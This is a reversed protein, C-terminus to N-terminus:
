PQPINSCPDPFRKDYEALIHDAFKVPAQEKVCNDSGAVAVAVAKWLEKRPDPGVAECMYETKTSDMLVIHTYDSDISKFLEKMRGLESEPFSHPLRHVLVPRAM